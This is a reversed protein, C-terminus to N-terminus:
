LRNVMLELAKDQLAQSAQLIEAQKSSLMFYYELENQVQHFHRLTLNAQSDRAELDRKINLLKHSAVLLEQLIQGRETLLNDREESLANIESRLENFLSDKASEFDKKLDDILGDRSKLASELDKKLDDILGDRSKLMEGLTVVAQAQPNYTRIRGLFKVRLLM